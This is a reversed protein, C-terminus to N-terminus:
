PPSILRRPTLQTRRWPRDLRDQNECDIGAVAPYLPGQVIPMGEYIVAPGGKGLDVGEFPTPCLHCRGRRHHNGVNGTVADGLCQARQARAPRQHWAPGCAPARLAANGVEVVIRGLQTNIAPRRHNTRAAQRRPSADHDVGAGGQRHIGQVILALKQTSDYHRSEVQHMLGQRSMRRPQGRLTSTEGGKRAHGAVGNGAAGNLCQAARHIAHALGHRRCPLRIELQDEAPTRALQDSAM